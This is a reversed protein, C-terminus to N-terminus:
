VDIMEVVFFNAYLDQFLTKDDICNHWAAIRHYYKITMTDKEDEVTRGGM